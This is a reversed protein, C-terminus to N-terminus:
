ALGSRKRLFWESSALGVLLLLNFPMDWLDKSVRESNNGELYSIEDALDSAKSLQYYKGGTEASIRKLLEVNQMADHFERSKDTRFFSTQARGLSTGKARAEIEVRYLGNETPAYEARHDASNETVGYTMPVDVTQGSPSTVRAIVQAEKIPEFKKDNVEARLGVTDGAAYVDRESYVEIPNPTTSVLYRLLQRWFTEHSTNKADLQM